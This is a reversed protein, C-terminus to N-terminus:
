GFSNQENRIAHHTTHQLNSFPYNYVGNTLQSRFLPIQATAQKGFGTLPLHMNPTGASFHSNRLATTVVQASLDRNLPTSELISALPYTNLRNAITYEMPGTSELEARIIDKQTQNIYRNSYTLRVTYLFTGTYIINDQNQIPKKVAYSDLNEM